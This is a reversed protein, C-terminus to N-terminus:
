DIGFTITHRARVGDEYEYIVLFNISEFPNFKSMSIGDIDIVTKESITQFPIQLINKKLQSGLISEIVVPAKPIGIKFSLTNDAKLLFSNMDFKYSLTDFDTPTFEWDIQESKISLNRDFDSLSGNFPRDNNMWKYFFGASISLLIVVFLLLRQFKTM